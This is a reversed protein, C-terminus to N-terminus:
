ASKVKQIEEVLEPVAKFLDAVLGYDAVTFIPAEEDKNIAVIVKSGKMGALHQIAGSLGIAFYLDPAVVKGTQGVQLDNPQWGADVVARTAGVAAGLLDALKDILKFGEDGKTGRGGSVIVAAETLEPRDSKIEEFQLFRKKLAGLDVDVSVDVKEGAADQRPAPEFETGRVSAVKVPTTIEVDVMANGAWVPREFHGKDTIATVDSAMGAKMRAAVRPLLDKAIATTTAAVVEANMDKAVQVVVPTYSECLYNKLSEHDAVHVRAAGYCLCEDAVTGVNCGAVLIHFEGGQKGVYDRAFAFAPLSVKKLTGDKHEAIVLVNGM